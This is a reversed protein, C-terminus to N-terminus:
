QRVVRIARLSNGTHELDFSVRDGCQLRRLGTGIIASYRVPFCEGTEIQIIGRGRTSDFERVIGQYPSVSM